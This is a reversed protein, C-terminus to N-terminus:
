EPIDPSTGDADPKLMGANWRLYDEIFKEIEGDMVATINGTNCGTRHDKVLQYPQFVYSRIQSGWAIDKKQSEKVDAEAKRKDLELQYLRSRLMKMAVAKNQHQSRENQCAVVTKTPLHTIRVASSTKNVHQGGAGSSRYTDIKLDEEKIDIEISDDIQPSAYVSVFSTHRRKNADFPSIRVLRHIGSEAKLLGYAYDGKVLLTVSRIGAEEGDVMDIEEVAFGQKECWRTYMRLLMAAWDCSETGGAGAHIYLYSANIDEPAKMLARTELIELRHTLEDTTQALETEMGPDGDSMELLELTDGVETDLKEWPEVSNKLQNLKRMHEQARITDDWFGPEAAQSEMQRIQGRVYDFNIYQRAEQVRGRMWELTPRIEETKLPL